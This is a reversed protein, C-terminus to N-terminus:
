SPKYRLMMTTLLSARVAKPVRPQIVRVSIAEGGPTLAFALYDVDPVFADTFRTAAAAPVPIRGVDSVTGPERRVELSVADNSVPLGRLLYYCSADKPRAEAIDRGTAAAVEALSFVCLSNTVQEGAAPPSPVRPTPAGSGQSTPPPSTIPAVTEPAAPQNSNPPRVDSTANVPESSSTCSVLVPTLLAGAVLLLFRQL